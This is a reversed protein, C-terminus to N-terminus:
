VASIVEWHWCFWRWFFQGRHERPAPAKPGWRRRECLRKTVGLASRLLRPVSDKPGGEEFRAPLIMRSSQGSLNPRLTPHRQVRPTRTDKPAASPCLARIAPNSSGHKGVHIRTRPFRAVHMCPTQPPLNKHPPTLKGPRPSSTHSIKTIQLARACKKQPRPSAALMRPDWM